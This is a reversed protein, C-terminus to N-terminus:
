IFGAECMVKKMFSENESKNLGDPAWKPYIVNEKIFPGPKIELDIAIESLVITMHYINTNIRYCLFEDKRDLIFSDIIEGEDSFLVIGERGEIIVHTEPVGFHKDPRCYDGKTRCLFMDQMSEESSENLCYRYRKSNINKNVIEAFTELQNTHVKIVGGKSFDVIRDGM